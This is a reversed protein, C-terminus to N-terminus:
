KETFPIYIFFKPIFHNSASQSELRRIANATLSCKSLIRRPLIKGSFITFAPTPAGIRGTYFIPNNM